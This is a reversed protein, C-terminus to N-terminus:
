FSALNDQRSAETNLDHYTMAWLGGTDGRGRSEPGCFRSSDVFLLPDSISRTLNIAKKLLGNKCMQTSWDVVVIVQAGMVSAATTFFGVTM